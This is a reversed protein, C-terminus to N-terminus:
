KQPIKLEDGPHIMSFITKGGLSVLEFINVKYKSAIAWFSDGKQVTYLTFRRDKPLIATVGYQDFEYTTGDITKKGTVAKGDEFYMWNGSDNQVWGEATESNAVLEVFRRLMASVEARTATGTPDFKGGDRGQLIGAMQMEKVATKAWTGIKASDTFSIEKHVSPLKYGIANAYSQMIVAMGERTVTDTLTGGVVAVMDKGSLTTLATVFMGRTMATKTSEPMTQALVTTAGMQLIIAASLVVSLTRKFQKM